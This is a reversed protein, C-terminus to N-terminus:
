GQKSYPKDLRQGLPWTQSHTYCHKERRDVVRGESDSEGPFVTNDYWEQDTRYQPACWEKDANPNRTLPTGQQHFSRKAWDPVHEMTFRHPYQSKAQALTIARM